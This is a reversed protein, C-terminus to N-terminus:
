SMAKGPAVPCFHMPDIRLAQSDFRHFMKGKNEINIEISDLVKEEATLRVTRNERANGCTREQRAMGALARNPPFAMGLVIALVTVVYLLLKTQDPRRLGDPALLM